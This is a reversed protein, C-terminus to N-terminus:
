PFRVSEEVDVSVKLQYQQALPELLNEVRVKDMTPGDYTVAYERGPKVVSSVEKKFGMTALIGDAKRLAEMPFNGIQVSLGVILLMNSANAM